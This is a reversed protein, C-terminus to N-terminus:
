DGIATKATLVRGTGLKYAQRRSLLSPEWAQAAYRTMDAGHSSWDHLSEDSFMMKREDWKRRFATICELWRQTGPTDNVCLTDLFGRVNDIGDAKGVKDLVDFEIGMESALVKRTKAEGDVDASTFVRHAMDHPGFHYHFDYPLERLNKIYYPLGKNRDEIYEVLVPGGTHPNAQFIGIGTSDGVGIDWVSLCPLQPNHPFKGFRGQEHMRKVEVTYYAGVMGGEWSCFYEQDIMEEPMGELRDEEVMEPTIVRRGDERTTDDVTLLQCHWKPNKAAMDFIKKGHNKGRPTYIFWAWGDNERLIPRLFEWAMPDCLSWESFVVGRPNSGVHSDYNDSGLLQWISGNILEITMETKNCAARIEPPFVQDIMRRGYRDIGNWVVKKAQINSPLMHWYVGVNQIADCATWNLATSDKGARRHWVDVARRGGGQMYQWVPRQHVRPDWANPIQLNSM